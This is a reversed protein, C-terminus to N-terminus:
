RGQQHHLHSSAQANLIQPDPVLPVSRRRTRPETSLYMNAFTIQSHLLSSIYRCLDLLTTAMSQRGKGESGEGQRENNINLHIYWYSCPRVPLITISQAPADHTHVFQRPFCQSCLQMCCTFSVPDGQCHLEYHRSYHLHMEKDETLYVSGSDSDSDSNGGSNENENTNENGNEQQNGKKREEDHVEDDGEEEEEEDDGSFKILQGKKLTDSQLRGAPNIPQLSAKSPNTAKGKTGKSGRKPRTAARSRSKAPAMDAFPQETQHKAQQKCPRLQHNTTFLSTSVPEAHVLVNIRVLVVKFNVKVKVKVKM